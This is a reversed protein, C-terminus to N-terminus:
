VTELRSCYKWTMMGNMRSSFSGIGHKSYTFIRSTPVPSPPNKGRTELVVLEEVDGQPLTILTYICFQTKDDM